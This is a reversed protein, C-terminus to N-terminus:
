RAAPAPPTSARSTARAAWTAALAAGLMNAVLDRGTNEYGGVDTADLLHTAGFEIVENFAGAGMGAVWTVAWVTSRRLPVAISAQLAELLALGASGFGIFHVVNDFHIWRTYLTNYFIRGDDLEILGGALHLTAWVALGTLTVTRFRVQDDALVVIAAVTAVIVLYPITLRAHRVAGVTGLVAAGTVMFASIAPHRRISARARSARDSRPPRTATSM